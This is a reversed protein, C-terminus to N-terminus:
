RRRESRRSVRASDPRRTAVPERRRMEAEAERLKAELRLLQQRMERHEELVELPVGMGGIHDQQWFSLLRANWYRLRHHAAAIFELLKSHNTESNIPFALLINMDTEGRHFPYNDYPHYYPPPEFYAFDWPNVNDPNADDPDTDDDSM